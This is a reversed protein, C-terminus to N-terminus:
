WASSSPHWDFFWCLSTPCWAGPLFVTPFSHSGNDLVAGMISAEQFEHGRATSEWVSYPQGTYVLSINHFHSTHSRLSSWLSCQPKQRKREQDSVRTSALQRMTLVSLCGSTSTWTIFFLPRWDLATSHDMKPASEGPRTLGESLQLRLWCRSQLRM